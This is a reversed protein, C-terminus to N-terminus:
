FGNEIERKHYYKALVVVILGLVVTTVVSAEVGYAGGSLISEANVQFHMLANENSSSGSVSLGMAGYLVFNWVSHLGCVIYINSRIIFLLSFVASVLYLNLVGVVAFGADAGLVSPLHPLAFASSSVFIALPLSTKKSLSPLLFGRCIVEEASGQIFFGAFLATMYIVDTNSTIDIFRMVDTACCMGIIVVLLLVAGIGGILYDYCKENFGVSKLKRIEVLKCYILAVALFVAMGYNKLLEAVHGTPMVGNLPDYGMASLIGIILAEGIVASLGYILLFALIKKAIYLAAPMDQKNNLPNINRFFAKFKM